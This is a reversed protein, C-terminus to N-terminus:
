HMETQIVGAGMTSMYYMLYQFVAKKMRMEHRMADGTYATMTMYGLGDQEPVDWLYKMSDVPWYVEEDGDAIEDALMKMGPEVIKGNLAAMNLAFHAQCPAVEMSGGDMLKGLVFDANTTAVVMSDNMVIGLGPMMPVDFVDWGNAGSDPRPTLGIESGYTGMMERVYDADKIGIAVAAIFDTPQVDGGNVLMDISPMDYLAIGVEGSLTSDIIKDIQMAKMLQMTQELEQIDMGGFIESFPGEMGEAMAAQRQMEDLQIMLRTPMHQIGMYMIFDGDDVLSYSQLPLNELAGLRAPASDAPLGECTQACNFMIDDGTIAMDVHSTGINFLYMQDLFSIIDDRATCSAMGPDELLVTHLRSMFPRFDIDQVWFEEWASDGRHMGMSAATQGGGAHAGGGYSPDREQIRAIAEARTEANIDAHAIGPLVSIAIVAALLMSFIRM